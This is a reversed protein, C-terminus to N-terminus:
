FAILYKIAFLLNDRTTNTSVLTLALLYSFILSPSFLDKFTILNFLPDSHTLLVRCRSSTSNRIPNGNNSTTKSGQVVRLQHLVFTSLSSAGMRRGRAPTTVQYIISSPISSAYILWVLKRTNPM